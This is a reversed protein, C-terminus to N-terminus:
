ANPTGTPLTVRIVTRGPRSEVFLSGGSQTARERMGLLGVGRKRNVPARGSFVADFGRGDDTIELKIASKEIELCVSANSARAHRHVNGLAEQVIRFLATEV